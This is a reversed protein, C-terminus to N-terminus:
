MVIMYHMVLWVTIEKGPTRTHRPLVTQYYVAKEALTWNEASLLAWGGIAIALFSDSGLSTVTIIRNGPLWRRGYFYNIFKASDLDYIAIGQTTAMVISGTDSYDVARGFPDPYNVKFPVFSLATINGVPLGQLPGLRYFTYNVSLVSLSVNNALFLDGNPAFSLSTVPGDVVGGLGDWWRSAWEFWWQNGDFFYVKFGAGVVLLGFETQSHAAPKVLTMHDDHSALLWQKHVWADFLSDDGNWSIGNSHFSSKGLICKSSNFLFTKKELTVFQNIAEGEGVLAPPDACDVSGVQTSTPVGSSGVVKLPARWSISYVPDTVNAVKTPPGLGGSTQIRAVFLGVSGGIWMSGDNNAIAISTVDGLHLGTMKQLIKCSFIIYLYNNYYLVGKFGCVRSM